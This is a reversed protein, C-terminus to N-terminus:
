NKPNKGISNPSKKFTRAQKQIGQTKEPLKLPLKGTLVAKVVAWPETLQATKANSELFKLFGREAKNLPEDPATSTTPKKRLLLYIM